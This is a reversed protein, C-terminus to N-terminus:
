NLFVPASDRYEIKVIDHAIFVGPKSERIDFGREKLYELINEESLQKKHFPSLLRADDSNQIDIFINRVPINYSNSGRQFLKSFVHHVPHCERLYERARKKLAKPVHFVYNDDRWKRFYDILIHLFPMAYETKFAIDKFRTDKKYRHNEPDDEEIDGFYAVYELDVWREMEAIMPRDALLPRQNCEMFLTMAQVVQTENSYLKRFALEGGSRRWSASPSAVRVM